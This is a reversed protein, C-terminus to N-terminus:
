MAQHRLGGQRSLAALREFGVLSKSNPVAAASVDPDRAFANSDICRRMDADLVPVRDEKFRQRALEVMACQIAPPLLRGNLYTRVLADSFFGAPTM